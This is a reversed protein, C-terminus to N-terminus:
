VPQDSPEEQLPHHRYPTIAFRMSLYPQGSQSQKQEPDAGLRANELIVRAEGAM